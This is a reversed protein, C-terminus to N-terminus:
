RRGTAEGVAVSLRLDLRFVRAGGVVSDLSLGTGALIALLGPLQAGEFLFIGLWLLITVVIAGTGPVPFPEDGAVLACPGRERTRM